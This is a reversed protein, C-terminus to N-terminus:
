DANYTRSKEIAFASASDADAFRQQEVVVGDAVVTIVIDDEAIRLCSCTVTGYRWLMVGYRFSSDDPPVTM